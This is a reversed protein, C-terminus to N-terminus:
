GPKSNEMKFTKLVKIEAEQGKVKTEMTVLRSEVDDVQVGFSSVGCDKGPIGAAGRHGRPGTPGAPGEPGPKGRPGQKGRVVTAVHHREYCSARCQELEDHCKAHLLYNFFILFLIIKM